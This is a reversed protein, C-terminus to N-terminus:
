YINNICGSSPTYGQTREGIWRSMLHFLACRSDADENHVEHLLGPYTVLQKDASGLADILTRSGSVPCVKDADGHVALWPLTIKAANARCERCARAFGYLLRLSAARQVLPDNAHRRQEEPDKTLLRADIRLNIPLRPALKSALGLFAGAAGDLRPMADLACGTTIVGRAWSLGQIAALTVVISGMSHGWVFIPLNSFRAQIDAGILTLDRAFEVFDTVHARPGLSEGHGRQDYVFCAIGNQALAAAVHRYRAAHEAIGHVIILGARAGGPVVEYGPYRTGIL